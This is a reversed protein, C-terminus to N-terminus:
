PYPIGRREHARGRPYVRRRRAHKGGNIINSMPV